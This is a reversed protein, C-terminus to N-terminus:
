NVKVYKYFDKSLDEALNYAAKFDNGKAKQVVQNARSLLATKTQYSISRDYGKLYNFIAATKRFYKQKAAVESEARMASTYHKIYEQKKRANRVVSYKTQTIAPVKVDSKINKYMKADFSNLLTLIKGDISQPASNEIEQKALNLQTQFNTKDFKNFGAAQALVHMFCLLSIITIIKKNKM